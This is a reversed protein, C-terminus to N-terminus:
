TYRRRLVIRRSNDEPQTIIDFEIITQLIETIVLEAVESAPTSGYREEIYSKTAQIISELVNEVVQPDLDRGQIKM